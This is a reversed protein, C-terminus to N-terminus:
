ARLTKQFSNQNQKLTQHTCQNFQSLVCVLNFILWFFILYFDIAQIRFLKRYLSSVLFVRKQLQNKHLYWFVPFFFFSVLCRQSKIPEAYRTAPLDHATDNALRFFKMLITRCLNSDYENQCCCLVREGHRAFYKILARFNRRGYFDIKLPRPVSM